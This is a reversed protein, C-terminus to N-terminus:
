ATTSNTAGLGELAAIVSALATNGGKAGSITVGDLLLPSDSGNHTHSGAAAQNNGPGLTHHIATSDSDTDAYTHFKRVTNVDPTEEPASATM